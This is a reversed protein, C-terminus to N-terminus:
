ADLSVHWANMSMTRETGESPTGHEVEGSALPFLSMNPNDPLGIKGALQGWVRDFLLWGKEFILFM